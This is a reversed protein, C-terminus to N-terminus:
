LHKIDVKVKDKGPSTPSTWDCKQPTASAFPQSSDTLFARCNRNDVNTRDGLGPESCPKTFLLFINRPQKHSPNGNKRFFNNLGSSQVVRFNM